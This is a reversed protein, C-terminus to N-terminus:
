PTGGMSMIQGTLPGALPSHLERLRQLAWHAAPQNGLRVAATGYNFYANPYDPKLMAALSFYQLAARIKGQQFLATGLNDYPIHYAPRLPIAKRLTDEVQPWLEKEAYANALTLHNRQNHPAKRVGDQAFAIPDAWLANRQWTATGYGLLACLLLGLAMNRSPISRVLATLAIAVGAMPLYLRHEVAADLPIITSEVALTVFFWFIGFALLPKRRHLWFAAALLLVLGAGAAVNQLTLLKGVLPYGYDFVQGYPLLLLRIYLWLVSFETVQYILQLNEPPKEVKRPQQLEAALPLAASPAIKGTASREEARAWYEALGADKLLVDSMGVQLYIFLCSVLVFPLLYAATRVFPRPLRGQGLVLWEFLFLAAPLVAANQKSMLACVAAALATLYWAVHTPAALHADANRAERARIYGYLALLFFLASMSTMRQVIYNVAQTQLPHVLFFLGACAAPIRADDLTFSGKCSSTPPFARKAILYVSFSALLHIAINVLHYGILNLEGFRYNLAFSLYALGRPAGINHWATSVQRIVPNEVINQIDDILWPVQLTRCYLLSGLLAIVLFVLGDIQWGSIGPEESTGRLRSPITKM